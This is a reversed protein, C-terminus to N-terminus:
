FIFYQLSRHSHSHQSAQHDDRHPLPPSRDGCGRYYLTSPDNDCFVSSENKLYTFCLALESFGEPDTSAGGAVVGQIRTWCCRSGSGAAEKIRIWCCRSESGAVDQDPDLWVSGAVCVSGAGARSGCLVSMVWLFIFLPSRSLPRPRLWRPSVMVIQVNDCQIQPLFLSWQRVAFVCYRFNLVFIGLLPITCGWTLGLKWMWTDTFSKYIGM